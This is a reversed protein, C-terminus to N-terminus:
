PIRSELRMSSFIEVWSLITLEIGMMLRAIRATAVM